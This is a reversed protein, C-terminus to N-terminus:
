SRKRGSKIRQALQSASYADRCEDCRCRYKKYETLSGHNPARNKRNQEAREAMARRRADTWGAEEGTKGKIWTPKGRRSPFGEAKREPTWSNKRGDRGHANVLKNGDSIMKAIWNAERTQIEDRSLGDPIKELEVWTFNEEGVVERIHAHVPSTGGSRARYRHQWYRNLGNTMTYGVYFVGGDNAKLGYIVPDKHRNM